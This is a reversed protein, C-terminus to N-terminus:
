DGDTKVQVTTRSRYEVGGHPQLAQSHALHSLAILRLVCAVLGTHHDAQSPGSITVVLISRPRVERDSLWALTVGQCESDRERAKTM